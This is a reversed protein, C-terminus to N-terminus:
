AGQKTPSETAWAIIKDKDECWEDLSALFATLDMPTAELIKRGIGADIEKALAEPSDWGNKMQEAERWDCGSCSGYSGSYFGAATRAYWDGQYSGTELYSLVPTGAAAICEDYGM